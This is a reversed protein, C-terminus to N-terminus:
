IKKWSAKEFWFDLDIIESELTGVEKYWKFSDFTMNNLNLVWKSKDQLQVLWKGKQKLIMEKTTM